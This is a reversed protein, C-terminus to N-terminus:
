KVGLRELIVIANSAFAIMDQRSLRTSGDVGFVDGQYIKELVLRARHLEPLIEERAWDAGCIFTSIQDLNSEPVFSIQEAHATAAWDRKEEWPSTPNLAESM